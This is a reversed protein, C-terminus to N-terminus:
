ASTLSSPARCPWSSASDIRGGSSAPGRRHPQRPAVKTLRWSFGAWSSTLPSFPAQADESQQATARKEWRRWAALRALMSDAYGAIPRLLFTKLTSEDAGARRFHEGQGRPLLHGLGRQPAGPHAPQLGQPRTSRQQKLFDKEMWQMHFLGPEHLQKPPGRRRKTKAVPGDDPVQRLSLEPQGM